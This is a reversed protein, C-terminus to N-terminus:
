PNVRRAGDYRKRWYSENMNAISVSKGTSPSHIFQGEGLYIGVHSYSKDLTNFFVLDGPQLEDSEQERGVRSIQESSRPLTKGLSQKFVHGVFGSCDFGTDPSTGGYKYPTGELSIAYVALDNLAPNPQYSTSNVRTSKCASFCLLLILPIIKKM